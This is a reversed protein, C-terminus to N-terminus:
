VLRDQHHSPFLIRDAEAEVGAKLYQSRPSMQVDLQM